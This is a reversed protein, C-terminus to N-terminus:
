PALWRFRGWTGQGQGIEIDDQISVLLVKGAARMWTAEVGM